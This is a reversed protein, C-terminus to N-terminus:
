RIAKGGPLHDSNLGFHDEIPSSVEFDQKAKVFEISKYCM